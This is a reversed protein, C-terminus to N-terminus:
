FYLNAGFDPTKGEKVETTWKATKNEGGYRPWFKECEQFFELVANTEGKELLEKALSMNPGFTNLVPAGKTRGSERLYKKAEDLKGERMAIRGLVFNGYYSAYGANGGGNWQLGPGLLETAYIRAKELDGAAFALKAMDVLRPSGPVSPSTQSQAKEFEMLAMAAGNTGPQSMADLRYIQGLQESWAPNRPELSQAKKLLEVGAERDSRLLYEAAHALIATNTPNNRVNQLWLAKGKRYASEETNPDLSMESGNGSFEPHHEIIWLVHKEKAAQDRSAYYALLDRRASFDEPDEALKAEMADVDAPALKVPAMLGPMPPLAPAMPLRRPAPIFPPAASLQKDSWDSPPTTKSFASAVGLRAAKAANLVKAVKAWTTEQDAQIDLTTRPNRLVADALKSQLDDLTVVGGQLTMAGEKSITLLLVDKTTGSNPPASDPMAQRLAPETNRRCSMPVAVLALLLVAALGRFGIRATRPLPRNMIHRVRHPLLMWFAYRIAERARKRLALGLAFLLAILVASQLLMPLAFGAFRAGLDSLSEIIANM